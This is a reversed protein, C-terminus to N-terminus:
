CKKFEGTEDIFKSMTENLESGPIISEKVLDELQKTINEFNEKINEERSVFEEVPIKNKSIYEIEEKTLSDIKTNSYGLGNLIEKLKPNISTAVQIGQTTGQQQNFIAQRLAKLHPPTNAKVAPVAGIFTDGVYMYMDANEFTTTSRSNFETDPIVFDAMINNTSLEENSLFDPDNIIKTDIPQTKSQVILNGNADKLPKGNQDRAVFYWEKYRGSLEDREPKNISTDIKKDHSLPIFSNSSVNTGSDYGLSKNIDDLFNDFSNEETLVNPNPPPQNSSENEEAYDLRVNPEENINNHTAVIELFASKILEKANPNSALGEALQDINSIGSLPTNNKELNQLVALFLAPKTELLNIIEDDTFNNLVKIIDRDVGELSAEENIKKKVVNNVDSIESNLKNTMAQNEGTMSQENQSISNVRNSANAKQMEAERQEQLIEAAIETRAEVLSDYLDLFKEAGKKTFLTSYIGAVRSRREKIKILDKLTDQIEKKHLDYNVPNQEKIEKLTEKYFEYADTSFIAQETKYTKTEKKGEEDTVERTKEAVKATRPESIIKDLVATNIPNSILSNLKKNLEQEREELNMTSGYLFTMQEQLGELANQPDELRKFKRRVWKDVLYKNNSDEFVENVHKHAKIINETRAKLKKLSERRTEETFKGEEFAFDENFKEIPIKELAEIDQLVTDELGVNFRSAVFSHYSEYEKNKFNFLDGKALAEDMEEQIAITRAHNKFNEQLNKNIPQENRTKASFQDEKIKQNLEKIESYAGGYWQFGFKAKGTKSDIKVPLGIGAFGMLGGILMSDQGETSNWYKSAAKTQADLFGISSKLSSDSFPAAYYDSYGEEMVGQSFEEFSETLTNKAGVMSYGVFKKFKGAKDAAAVLKGSAERTVGRLPNIRGSLKQGVRFGFGFSKGFQILNSMGVLPVNTFWALEGAQEAQYAIREKIDNPIEDELATVIEEESMGQQRLTQAKISLATNSNIYNHSAKMMTSRYTDRAILSSEYGASRVMSAATGIGARYKQTLNVIQRAKQFDSLTDIGRIIKMGKAVKAAGSGFLRTAQAALRATNGVLGPAAAGGTLATAYGAAVETLVAGAVFAAAPIVDANLSKMPNSKLRALFGKDGEYYDSGGYVVFQKNLWEDHKEWQDFLANNFINKADLTVMGKALGYALPIVGTVANITSGLFKASTNYLESLFGQNEDLDDMLKKQERQYNKELMKSYDAVQDDFTLAFLNKNLPDIMKSGHEEKFKQREYPDIIANSIDVPLYLNLAEGSVTNNTYRSTNPNQNSFISSAVGKIKADEDTKPVTYLNKLEFDPIIPVYGKSDNEIKDSSNIEIPARDEVTGDPNSTDIGKPDGGVIEKKFEM